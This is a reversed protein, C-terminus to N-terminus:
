QLSRIREAMRSGCNKGSSERDGGNGLGITALEYEARQAEATDLM